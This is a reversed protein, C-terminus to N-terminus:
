EQPKPHCICGCGTPCVDNTQFWDMIHEVHGGHGCTPCWTCAGRVPNCCIACQNELSLSAQKIAQIGVKDKNYTTTDYALRKSIESCVTLNGWGYLLASYRQIYNDYRCEGLKPLLQYRGSSTSLDRRDRGFTLICVITALMQWDGNQEYHRLIHEIIGTTLADNDGGWGDTDNMEFTFITDITQAILTFTNAKEQQGCDSCVQANYLCLQQSRSLRESAAEPSQPNEMTYIGLQHLTHSREFQLASSDTLPEKKTRKKGIGSLLHQDPPAMDSPLQGAFMKKLNGLMSSHKTVRTSLSVPLAPETQYSSTSAAQPFKHSSRSQNVGSQQWSTAAPVTFNKTLWWEDGLKLLNALHPTQGSLLIDDYKTTILVSPSLSQLGTFTPVNNAEEEAGLLPKQSASFYEDFLDSGGKEPSETSAAVHYFGDNDSEDDNSDDLALIEIEESSSGSSSSSGDDVCENDDNSDGDDDGWQIMTARESMHVLDALTKPLTQNSIQGEKLISSSDVEEVGTANVMDNGKDISGLNNLNGLSNIGSVTSNMQYYSWMRAVPGNNFSVLEGVGSFAVGCLPPCPVRVAKDIDIPVNNPTDIIASTEGDDQVSTMEEEVLDTDPVPSKESRISDSTPKPDDVMSSKKQSSSQTANTDGFLDEEEDKNWWQSAHHDSGHRYVRPSAARRAINSELEMKGRKSSVNETSVEKTLLETAEPVGYITLRGADTLVVVSLENNLTDINKTNSKNVPAVGRALDVAMVNATERKSPAFNLVDEEGRFVTMKRAGKAGHNVERGITDTTTTLTNEEKDYICWLEAKWGKNEDFHSLSSEEPKKSTAVEDDLMLRPPSPPTQVVSVEPTTRMASPGVHGKQEDVKREVSNNNDPTDRFILIGGTFSPHVRAAVADPRSISSTLTYTDDLSDENRDSADADTPPNSDLKSSSSSSWVKVVLNDDCDDMGWTVWRAAGCISKPAISAIGVGGGSCALFSHTPSNVMRDDWVRVIGLTDLTTFIHQSEDQSYACHIFPTDEPSIFRMNPMINTTSSGLGSLLSTRLDYIYASSGCTALLVPESPGKWDLSTVVSRRSSSTKNAGSSPGTNITNSNLNTTAASSTVFSSMSQVSVTSPKRELPIPSLMSKFADQSESSTPQAKPGSDDADDMTNNRQSGSIGWADSANLRGVLPSLARGSCDWILIGNGRATALLVPQSSYRDNPSSSTGDETVSMCPQFSMSSIGGMEKGYVYYASSTSYNLVLWPLKPANVDVITIGMPGAIAALSKGHYNITNKDNVIGTRRIAMCTSPTQYTLDAAGRLRRGLMVNSSDMILSKKNTSKNSMGM